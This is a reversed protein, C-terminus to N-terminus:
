CCNSCYIAKVVFLLQWIKLKTVHKYMFLGNEPWYYLIYLFWNHVTKNPQPHKLIPHQHSYKPRLPVLCCLLPSFKMILFKMIQVGWEINHSHHFRSSNSPRPMYIPNPLPSAHVPNQHPFRLSVTWQPSGPTSSLIINPHIKLIHSIPYPSSQAPEPYVCTASM